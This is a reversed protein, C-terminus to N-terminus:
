RGECMSLGLSRREIHLVGFLSVTDTPQGITDVPKRAESYVTVKSHFSLLVHIGMWSFWTLSM